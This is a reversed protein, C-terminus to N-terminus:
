VLQNKELHFLRAFLLKQNRMNATLSLRLKAYKTYYSIPRRIFTAPLGARGPEVCGPEVLEPNARESVITTVKAKTSSGFTPSSSQSHFVRRPLQGFPSDAKPMESM